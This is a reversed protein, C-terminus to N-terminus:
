TGLLVCLPLDSITIDMVVVRAKEQSYGAGTFTTGVM